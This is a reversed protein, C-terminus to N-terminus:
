KLNPKIERRNRQIIFTTIIKCRNGKNLYLYLLHTTYPVFFLACLYLYYDSILNLEAKISAIAQTLSAVLALNQSVGQDAKFLGVVSQEGLVWVTVSRLVQYM